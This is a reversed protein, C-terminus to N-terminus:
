MKFNLDLPYLENKCKKDILYQWRSLGPIIIPGVNLRYSDLLLAALERRVIRAPILQETIKHEREGNVLNLFLTELFWRINHSYRQCSVKMQLRTEVANM